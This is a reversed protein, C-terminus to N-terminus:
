NNALPSGDYYVNQIFELEEHVIFDFTSYVQQDEAAGNDDISLKMIFSTPTKSGAEWQIKREDGGPENSAKSNTVVYNIGNPHPTSFTVLYARTDNGGGGTTGLSVISAINFSFPITTVSLNTGTSTEVLTAGAFGVTRTVRDVTLLSSDFDGGGGTDGICEQIKVCDICNNNWM